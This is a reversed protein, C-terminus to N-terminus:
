MPTPASDFDLSLGVDDLTHWYKGALSNVLPDISRDEEYSLDISAQKLEINLSVGSVVQYLGMVRFCLLPETLNSLYIFMALITTM